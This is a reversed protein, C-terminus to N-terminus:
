GGPATEKALAINRRVVVKKVLVDSKSLDANECFFGRFRPCGILREGYHDIEILPGHCQACHKLDDEM